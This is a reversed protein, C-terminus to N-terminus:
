APQPLIAPSNPAAGALASAQALNKAADAAVPAAQLLTSMDAAQAQQDKVAALEEDSLLVRKPVGNVEFVLKTAEDVNVRRFVQAAREPGLAQALPALQEVSRLVAIGEEAQRARTLPSSFEIEYIGGMDQLKQPMDPLQNAAALIDLERQVQVALFETEIRSATPALLAGKEQARLMAETATMQPNDVLIQFLTNWFADNILRRKQDAKEEAMDVKSGLNLPQILQRGQEDLAGYNIGAPTLRVTDLVGQRGALLPPLVALQRAQLGTREIENLMKVDPLVTAAPGRGYVEGPTVTYRATPYPFSRFGSEELKDNTDICVYCSAFRMGRYDARGEDRETNPYVAHLLKFEQLPNNGEAARRVAQPATNPFRAMIQRATATWERHVRDVIGYENEAIFLQWMPVARYYLGVGLRDGVFLSMTGFSFADYFSEHVQNDYNSAYRAAFLRRTVEEFYGQVERDEALEAHVTKLGHWQQNRPVVLSHLAAVGRDLAVGPSADFIKETRQKGKDDKPDRKFMAKRPIIREAIEQWTQEFPQRANVMASHQQLLDRIDAM